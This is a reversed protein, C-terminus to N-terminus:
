RPEKGARGFDDEANGHYTEPNPEKEKEEYPGHNIVTVNVMLEGDARPIVGSNKVGKALIAMRNLQPKEAQHNTMAIRTM